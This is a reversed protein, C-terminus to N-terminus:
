VLIDKRSKTSSLAIRKLWHKREESSIDSGTVPDKYTDIRSHAIRNGLFANDPDYKIDKRISKFEIHCVHIESLLHESGAVSEMFRKREEQTFSKWVQCAETWNKYIGGSPMDIGLERQWVANRFEDYAKDNYNVKIKVRQKRQTWFKKEKPKGLESAKKLPLQDIPVKKPSTIRNDRKAKDKSLQAQYKNWCAQQKTETKCKSNVFTRRLCLGSLCYKSFSDIDKVVM